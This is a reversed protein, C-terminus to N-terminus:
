ATLALWFRATGAFTSSSVAQAIPTLVVSGPGIDKLVCRILCNFAENFFMPDALIELIVM